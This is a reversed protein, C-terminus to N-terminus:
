GGFRTAYPVDYLKVEDILGNFPENCGGPNQTNGIAFGPNQAPDLDRFPRINTVAQAAIKNNFALTLIGSADDLSACVYVWRGTPIPAKVISTENKANDIQFYCNGDPNVGLGYPDLGGRDDGRFVIRENQVPSRVVVWATITFSGTFKLGDSDPVRVVGDKGNFDFAKGFPGSKYDAGGSLSGNHGGARDVAGNEANWWAVPTQACAAGTLLFFVVCLLRCANM